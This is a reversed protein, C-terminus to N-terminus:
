GDIRELDTARLNYRHSYRMVHSGHFSFVPFIFLPPLKNRDNSPHGTSKILELQVNWQRGVSIEEDAQKVV